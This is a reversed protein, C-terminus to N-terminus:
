VARQAERALQEVDLRQAYDNQILQLARAVRAFPGNHAALAYLASAQGGQLARFLIERLLNPGLIHQESVSGLCRILRAIADLMEVELPVPAIARPMTQEAEATPLAASGLEDILANLQPLDTNIYMGLLPSEPSAFTECEFPLTASM